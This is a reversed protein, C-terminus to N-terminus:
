FARSTDAGQRMANIGATQNRAETVIFEPVVSTKQALGILSVLIFCFFTISKKM